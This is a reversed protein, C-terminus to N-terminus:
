ISSGIVVAVVMGVLVVIWYILNLTGHHEKPAISGWIRREQNRVQRRKRAQAKQM